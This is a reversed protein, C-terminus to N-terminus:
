RVKVTTINRILFYALGYLLVGVGFIQVFFMLDITHYLEIVADILWGLTIGLLLLIGLVGLFIGGVLVGGKYFLLGALYMLSLLLFMVSTDILIRTIWNDDGIILSPHLFLFSHLNTADVIFQIVSQISSSILALLLAYGFFYLGTAFFINRRIAGVKLAFPITEKVTLFGIIGASFYTAFPFGFSFWADEVDLLFYSIALSIVLFSLLISWFIIFSYRVNTAYFYLLGKIQRNM